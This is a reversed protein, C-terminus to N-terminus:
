LFLQKNQLQLVLPPHVLHQLQILLLQLCDVCLGVQAPEDVIDVVALHLLDGLHAALPQVGVEMALVRSTVM